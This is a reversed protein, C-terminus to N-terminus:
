LKLKILEKEQLAINKKALFYTIGDHVRINEPFVINNIATIDSLKGSRLDIKALSFVGNKEYVAYFVNLKNDFLIQNNWNKQEHFSISISDTLKGKNTYSKLKNNVFDFILINHKNDSFVPCYIPKAAFHLYWGILQVLKPSEALSIMNGDWTGNEIRNTVEDTAKYYEQIIESYYSSAVKYAEENWVKAFTTAEGNEFLDYNIFQDHDEYKILVVISDNLATKCARLLSKFAKKDIPELQQVQGKSIYTQIVEDKSILYINGFCDKKIEKIKRKVKKEIIWDENTNSAQIYRSNNRILLTYIIDNSIEFGIKYKLMKQEKISVENVPINKETLEISQILDKLPFIFTSNTTNYRVHSVRLQLTDETAMISFYGKNDSSTGKKNITISAHSIGNGKADIIQGRLINQTYSYFPITLVFLLSLLYKRM